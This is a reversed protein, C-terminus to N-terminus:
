EVILYSETKLESLPRANFHWWEHPISRFGSEEMLRRLLRRNKVQLDTLEGSALMEDEHRPQARKTFDDFATGMDLETGNRDVITLDIAFGFNHVSGRDPNAVYMEQDTGKVVDFLVRQFRRPRLADLILLGSEADYVRLKQVVSELMEFAEAHLYAFRFDGYVNRGVFNDPTAYRLDIKIGPLDQLNKFQPPLDWTMNFSYIHKLPKDVNKHVQFGM